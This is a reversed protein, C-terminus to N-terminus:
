SCPHHHESGGPNPPQQDSLIRQFQPSPSLFLCTLHGASAVKIDLQKGHVTGRTNSSARLQHEANQLAWPRIDSNLKKSLTHSGQCTNSYSITQHSNLFVVRASAHFTCPFHTVLASARSFLQCGSSASLHHGANLFLAVTTSSPPFFPFLLSLLCFHFGQPRATPPPFSRFFWNQTQFIYSNRMFFSM